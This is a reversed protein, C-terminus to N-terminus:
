APLHIMTNSRHNLRVRLRTQPNMSSRDPMGWQANRGCGANVKLGDYQVPANTTL